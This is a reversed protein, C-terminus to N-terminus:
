LRKNCHLEGRYKEKIERSLNRHGCHEIADVLTDVDADESNLWLRLTNQLCIVVGPSKRESEFKKIEETPVDLALGLTFWSSKCPSLRKILYSLKLKVDVHIAFNYRQGLVTVECCVAM